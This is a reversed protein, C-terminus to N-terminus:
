CRGETRQDGEEDSHETEAEDGAKDREHHGAFRRALCLREYAVGCHCSGVLRGGIEGIRGAEEDDVVTPENERDVVPGLIV